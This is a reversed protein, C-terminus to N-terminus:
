VQKLVVTVDVYLTDRYGYWHSKEIPTIAPVVTYTATNPLTLTLGSSFDQNNIADEIDGLEDQTIKTWSLTITSKVAVLDVQLSGDAMRTESGIRESSVRIGDKDIPPLTDSGLTFAM